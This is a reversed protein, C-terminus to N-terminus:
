LSFAQSAATRTTSRSDNLNPKEFDYDPVKVIQNPLRDICKECNGDLM